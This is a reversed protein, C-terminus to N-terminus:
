LRLAPLQNRLTRTQSTLSKIPIPIPIPIPSQNAERIISLWSRMFPLVKMVVDNRQFEVFRRMHPDSREYPIQSFDFWRVANFESGDFTIAQTPEAQVVCWLSVDTHGSTLGTIWTCTVMLPPGIVHSALFGLEEALERSVTERPHEGPEVHGGTPLWLQADKHDVLLISDSNVVAFYSVLIDVCLYRFM